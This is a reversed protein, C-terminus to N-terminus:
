SISFQPASHALLPSTHPPHGRGMPSTYPSPRQGRGSIKKVIKLMEAM